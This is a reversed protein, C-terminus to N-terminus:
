VFPWNIFVEIGLNRSNPAANAVKAIVLAQEGCFELADAVGAVGGAALAGGVGAGAGAAAAGTGTSAATISTAGAVNGDFIEGVLGSACTTRSV